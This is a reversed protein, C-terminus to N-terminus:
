DDMYEAHVLYDEMLHNFTITATQMIATEKWHAAMNLDLKASHDVQKNWIAFRGPRTVHNELSM